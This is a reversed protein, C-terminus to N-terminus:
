PRTDTSTSISSSRTLSPNNTTAPVYYRDNDLTVNSLGHILNVRMVTRRADAHLPALSSLSTDPTSSSLSSSDTFTPPDRGDSVMPIPQLTPGRLQQGGSLMRHITAESIWGALASGESFKRLFGYMKRLHEDEESRMWGMVEEAIRISKFDMGWHDYGDFCKLPYVVVVQHSLGDLEHYRVFTRINTMLESFSIRQTVVVFKCFVIILM